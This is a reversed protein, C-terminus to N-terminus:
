FGPKYEEVRISAADKVGLSVSVTTVIATWFVRDKDAIKAGLHIFVYQDRQKLRPEGRALGSLDHRVWDGAHRSAVTENTKSVLRILLSGERLHLANVAAVTRHSDRGGSWLVFRTTTSRSTHWHRTSHTSAHSRRTHVAHTGRRWHSIVTRRLGHVLEGVGVVGSDENSAQRAINGLILKAREELAEALDGVDLDWGSLATAKDLEDLAVGGLHGDILHLAVGDTIRTDAEGPAARLVVGSRRAGRIARCRRWWLILRHAHRGSVRITLELGELYTTCSGIAM